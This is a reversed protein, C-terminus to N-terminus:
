HSSNKNIKAKIKEKIITYSGIPDKLLRIIRNKWPLIHIQNFENVPFLLISKKELKRLYEWNIKKDNIKKYITAHSKECIGIIELGMNQAFSDFTYRFHFTSPLHCKIVPYFCNAIILYGNLNVSKIMKAFLDLPDPVHELVDTSVLCDYKKNLSNVFNVNTYSQTKLIAYQSPYPEYIDVSIDPDKESIMRALTGLGGGFDLVSQLSYQAIQSSIAERHQLSLDHNEIFIGNLIWLPHKYYESITEKNLNINDCNMEDWVLDMIDWINQLDPPNKKAFALLRNIEIHEETSLYATEIKMYKIFYIIALM